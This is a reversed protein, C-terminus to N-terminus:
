AFPQMGALSVLTSRNNIIFFKKGPPASAKHKVSASNISYFIAHEAKVIFLLIDDTMVRIYLDDNGFDPFDKLFTLPIDIENRDWRMKTYDELIWVRLRQKVINVFSLMARNWCLPWVNDTDSFLYRPISVQVFQEKEMEVCILKSDGHKSNKIVYLVGKIIIYGKLKDYHRDYWTVPSDITRWSSDTGITLVQCGLRDHTFEDLYLCVLKYVKSTSIFCMTMILVIKKPFPLTLVQKTSPNRISYAHTKKCEELQLGHLFCWIFCSEEAIGRDPNPAELGSRYAIALSAQPTMHKDIFIPDRITDRWLTCVTRFRLLSLVPLYSLIEFILDHPLHPKGMVEASCATRRKSIGWNPLTRQRKLSM